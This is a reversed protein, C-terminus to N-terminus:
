CKGWKYCSGWTVQKDTIVELKMSCQPLMNSRGLTYCVGPLEISCINELKVCCITSPSCLLLQFCPYGGEM